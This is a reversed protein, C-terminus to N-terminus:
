LDIDYKKIKYGIQRASMGLQKAAKTQIGRNEILAKIIAEKEMDQLSSKTLSIHEDHGQSFEHDSVPHEVTKQPEEVREQPMYMKQFNFPMVHNLMEPQLEGQPCILVIREMTNQLERINGPWPYELLIELAAKSFYMEKHHERMYKKLYHEILLQIDEYRERLPPLNVPIVNLRYFLDERFEGNKVMKELNRNTAAVLRVNTKITKTGGVREFEQEQLIRLLKVQLAPTIDGIEDLFLTGGDALEFRGKRMEKADTFAGKEHGFLESELLTESIAACNLKIFPGNKRPSINHVAAAILEKGTGTEGRVLITADSPAVTEIISFIQQMATSRGIINEFKYDSLMEDQYYAKLDQIEEKEKSYRRHVSLTGLSISGLITLMHVIDDFDLPADKKLNASIVGVVGDKQMIPVAVYSILSTNLAGMKNLYNINNHINEIVIPEASKAALGTAGEGIKYIAMSKQQPTLDISAFLELQTKEDNLLFLACRDLYRGHKLMRMGKEISEKVNDSGSLLVAIDYLLGIEKYAFVLSCTQCEDPLDSVLM